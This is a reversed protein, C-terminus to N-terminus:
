LTSNPQPTQQLCKEVRDPHGNKPPFGCFSKGLATRPPLINFYGLHDSYFNVVPVVKDSCSYDEGLGSDGICERYDCMVGNRYGGAAHWIETDGHYGYHPVM